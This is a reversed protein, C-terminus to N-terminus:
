DGARARGILAEVDTWPPRESFRARVYRVVDAIQEDSLAAGFAPMFGGVRGPAPHIGAVVANVVNRPDPGDVASHLALSRLTFPVEGGSEHCVACAGAYINGGAEIRADNGAVKSSGSALAETQATRDPPQKGMLSIVYASIARVDTEPVEALSAVVPAMPGAAGGHNVDWSRLYAELSDASWPLPAESHANLAPAWWGEAEGGEYARDSREAGLGNRPTHCAGCHSLAEALYAGRNWDQSRSPDDGFPGPHFFLLKWAAVLPRLNYPFRLANPKAEAHVPQRTMVFAYLAQLDADRLKAYHTYPFAPYLETGTRDVGERMARTFAALSWRGLGTDPDPTINTGYIVGFPTQLPRGGAFDRGGEATHCSSCFGLLALKQGEEVLTHPFATKEPPSVAPMASHWTLAAAASLAVIGGLALILLVRRIM